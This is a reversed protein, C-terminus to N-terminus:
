TGSIKSCSQVHYKDLFQLPSMKLATHIRDTNYYGIYRYIAAFLMGENEFRNVDGFEEKFRGFFSEIYGNQWPSGKDSVSIKVGHSEIYNTVLDALNENGQDFHFVKPIGKSLAIQALRYQLKSNHFGSIGTALIQRSYIDKVAGIYFFRGKFKVYTLDSCYVQYPRVITITPLLNTYNHKKANTKTTYQYKKGHRRPPYMNYKRMIRRVRNKGMHLAIAIRKHGYAPNAKWLEEIQQKVILDKKEQLSRYYVSAVSIDLLKAVM